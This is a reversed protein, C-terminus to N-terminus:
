KNQNDEILRVLYALKANSLQRYDFYPTVIVNKTPHIFFGDEVAECHELIDLQEAYQKGSVLVTNKNEDILANPNSFLLCTSNGAQLLADDRYQQWTRYNKPELEFMLKAFINFIKRWHNGTQKVINAIDGNVLPEITSLSKLEDVLPQNGICVIIESPLQGLGVYLM